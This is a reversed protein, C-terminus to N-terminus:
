LGEAPPEVASAELFEAIRELETVLFQAAEDVNGVIDYNRGWYAVRRSKLYAVAQEHNM